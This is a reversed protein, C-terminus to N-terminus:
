PVTIPVAPRPSGMAAAAYQNQPTPRHDNISYRMCRKRNWTSLYTIKNETVNHDNVSMNRKAPKRIVSDAQGQVEQKVTDVVIKWHVLVSQNHWRCQEDNQSCREPLQGVCHEEVVPECGQLDETATDKAVDAVIEGVIEKVVALLNKLLGKDM